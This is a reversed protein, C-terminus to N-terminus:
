TTTPLTPSDPRSTHALSTFSIMLMTPSSAADATTEPTQLEDRLDDAFAEMEPAYPTVLGFSVLRRPAVLSVWNAPCPEVELFRVNDVVIEARTTSTCGLPVRTMSPVLSM